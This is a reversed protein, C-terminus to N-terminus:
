FNFHITIEMAQGQQEQKLTMPMSPIVAKKISNYTIGRQTQTGANTDFPVTEVVKGKPDVYFTIGLQGPMLRDSYRILERQWSNEVSRLVSNVYRGRETREVNRAAVGKRSISGTIRNKKVESNMGAAKAFPDQMPDVKQGKNSKMAQETPKPKPNVAAGEAGAKVGLKKKLEEQARQAENRAIERAVKLTNSEDMKIEALKDQTKEDQGDDTKALPDGLQPDTNSPDKLPNLDELVQNIDKDIMKSYDPADPAGAVPSKAAGGEDEIKGEHFRSDIIDSGDYKPKEGEVAVRDPANLDAKMDSHALTDRVGYALPDKPAEESEQAATTREFYKETPLIVVANTRKEEQEEALKKLAEEIHAQAEEESVPAKPIVSAETAALPPSMYVTVGEDASAKVETLIPELEDVLETYKVYVGFGGLFAVHLVVSAVVSTIVMPAPDQRSSM